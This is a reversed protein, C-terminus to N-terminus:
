SPYTPTRKRLTLPLLSLALLPLLGGSSSCGSSSGGNMESGADSGADRGGSGADSGADANGLSGSDVGGDNGADAPASGRVLVTATATNGLSDTVGVYDIVNSTSGATYSGGATLTGGSASSAMAWSYGAGSGGSVTFNQTGRPSLTVVPPSISMTEGEYLEASATELGVTGGDVSSAGGAVLVGISPLVAAVHTARTNAMENSPLWTGLAPEYREASSLFLSGTGIGGEVLVKGSPTLSAAHYARNAVLSGTESWTGTVPDYLEATALYGFGLGGVVLVKGSPLLTATHDTRVASLPGTSSWSATSPDYLEASAVAQVNCGGDTTTGGGAVLVQGSALLTATHGERATGLSGTTSWIGTSPDYLEASALVTTTTGDLKGGVVLVQGSALRTATHFLRATGLSGADSWNGTNPDYLETSALAHFACGDTNPSGGTVLVKGSELLTARHDARATALSGTPGWAPMSPNYLEASSRSGVSAFGGAVLVDGSLLLTATAAGRETAMSPVPTWAPNGQAEAVAPLALLM